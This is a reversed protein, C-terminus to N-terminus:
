TRMSRRRIMRMEEDTAGPILIIFSLSIMYLFLFNLYIRFFESKRSKMDEKVFEDSRRLTKRM